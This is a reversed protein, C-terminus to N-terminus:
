IEVDAGDCVAEVLPGFSQGPAAEQYVLTPQASCVSQSEGISLPGAFLLSACEGASNPECVQLTITPLTADTKRLTCCGAHATEALLSGAVVALTQVFRLM